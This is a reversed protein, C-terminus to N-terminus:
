TLPNILRLGKIHEFDATNASWLEIDNVLATAAIIADALQIRPKDRRLTIVREIVGDDLDYAVAQDFFSRFIDKDTPELKHWGLVEIQSVVSVAVELSLLQTRLKDYGRQRSYIIINSDLLIVASWEIGNTLITESNM